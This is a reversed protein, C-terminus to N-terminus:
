PSQTTEMEVEEWYESAHGAVGELGSSHIAAVGRLRARPFTNYDYTWTQSDDPDYGPQGVNSVTRGGVQYIAVFRMYKLNPNGDAADSFHVPSENMTRGFMRCPAGLGFVVYREDGDSSLGLRQAVQPQLFAVQMGDAVPVFQVQQDYPWFSPQEPAAVMVTVERLGADILANAEDEQLPDVSLEAAVGAPLYDALSSGVLMTDVRDPYGNMSIADYTQIAKFIEPINASCSAVHARTLLRPFMAVAVGAIAVIITLVIVLELLTLGHRNRRTKQCCLM